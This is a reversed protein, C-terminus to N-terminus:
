AAPIISSQIEKNIPHQESMAMRVAEAIDDRRDVFGSADMTNVNVVIPRIDGRSNYDFSRGFVDTSYSTGSFDSFRRSDVESGIMSDRKKRPDGLLMPALSLGIAAAALIPAAPGMVGALMLLSSAAGAGSAGASLIGRAGGQKIGSYIGAAGGAIAGAYGVGTALQSKQNPIFGEIDGLENFIPTGSSRGANFIMPNTSSQGGFIQGLGLAATLGGGIGTGGGVGGVALLAQTNANTAATNADTAFQLPDAGFPTGQLLKGFTSLQGNSGIQGPLSLKGKVSSYALDGANQFLTKGTSTALGATFGAIGSRGAILADFISGTTNRWEKRQNAAVEAARIQFDLNARAAEQETEATAIRLDRIQKAAALEGGPGALLEIMRIRYDLIEREDQKRKETDARLRNLMGEGFSGDTGDNGGIFTSSDLKLDGGTTLGLIDRNFREGGSFLSPASRRNNTAGRAFLDFLRLDGSTSQKKGAKGTITPPLYVNGDVREIDRTISTSGFTSGVGSMTAGVGFFLPALGAPVLSALSKFADGTGQMLGQTVNSGGGGSIAGTLSVVVPVIFPALKAALEKKLQQLSLTLKDFEDDAKSLTKTLSEDFGIGLRRVEKELESYNKILPTLDKSGDGLLQTSLFARRNVDDIKELKRVVDLMVEGAARQQGSLTQTGVGLDVLAKAAKKGEGEQDKLASVLKQVAGEFAGARVGAIEAVASLRETQGISLGLRDSLNAISEAAKGQEQVLVVSAQAAGLIAAGFAAATGAAILMKSNFGEIAPNVQTTAGGLEKFKRTLDDVAAANQSTLLIKLEVTQM